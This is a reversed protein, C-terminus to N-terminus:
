RRWAPPSTPMERGQGSRTCPWGPRRCPRRATAPSPRGLCTTTASSCPSTAGWTSDKSAARFGVAWSSTTSRPPTWRPYATWPRESWRPPSTTPEFTSSRVRGPGASRRALLRSSSQKLCQDRRSGQNIDLRPPSLRFAPPHLRHRPSHDHTGHDAGSGSWHTRRRPAAADQRDLGVPRDAARSGGAPHHPRPKALVTLFPVRIDRVPVADNGVHLRDTLMANERVFMRVSEPAAAGLFPIHDVAWMRMARYGQVYEDSWLRDWLAAVRAVDATPTLLRFGRSIVSAPVNGSDDLVDDAELGAPGFLDTLPGMRTFDVPTAMVTLSRIPSDVHHAAHLFTLNGGFCYGLGNVEDASTLGRIRAIASPIYDDVYDGLLNEADREDPIGWDLMSVDFGAGVLHEVFSNGLSLDLIYNKSFLSFVILLPVRHEVSQSHYRWLEARGEAWVVSKASVGVQPPRGLTSDGALKVGNRIRLANRGIHERLRSWRDQVSTM